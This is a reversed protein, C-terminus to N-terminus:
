RREVLADAKSRVRIPELRDALAEAEELKSATEAHITYLPAGIEIATGATQHIVLGARSDLPAGARRALDCLQRNDVRSALGARDARITTSHAGPELDASSVDPDGGQAAVIDRFRELAQGSELLEAASADVGCHELLLESLRLSKLRLSEPADEDGELVALVDRAELAPGVGRGIPDTGHTIACSVDMGLHDGVRKFDDALERAAVLSEVKAGEGYPVDIVVHTSGASRKKSLVSAMLQGPPDISLPNEARIIEDDVPSLDVGGGWVLCGNTETVIEEIEALSFEVDCLVEMVDATGAPSTVARSSTKPMTLGAAAVIAVMIPTVCNGAIGGISHKDAVVPADWSLQQGVASMAETLHKTEELSLGNAYIGSVYAGLEVDSLRHEHIDQVIRGLEHPELEVDDLKKRVYRVSRPTGALKVDVAGHVAHLPETVGVTGPEVLEDTRKVIGTVTEGNWGIRVRDLPHAGLEDADTTNLLVLPRSTGIDIATAELEM